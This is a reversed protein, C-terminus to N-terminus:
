ADTLPPTPIAPIAESSKLVRTPVIGTLTRQVKLNDARTGTEEAYVGLIHLDKGTPDSLELITVARERRRIKRSQAKEEATLIEKNPVEKHFGPIATLGFDLPHSYGPRM